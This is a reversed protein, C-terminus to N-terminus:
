DDEALDPRGDAGVGIPGRYRGPRPLVAEGLQRAGAIAQGARQVADDVNTEYDPREGHVVVVTLFPQDDLRHDIQQNERRDTAADVLESGLRASRRNDIQVQAVVTFSLDPAFVTEAEEPFESQAAVDRSEQGFIVVIDDDAFNDTAIRVDRSSLLVGSHRYRRGIEYAERGLTGFGGRFSM